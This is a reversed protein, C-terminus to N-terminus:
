WQSAVMSIDTIFTFMYEAICPYSLGTSSTIQSVQGTSVEYLWENMLNWGANGEIAITPPGTISHWANNM